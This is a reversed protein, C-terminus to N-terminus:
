NVSAKSERYADAIAKIKELGLPKVMEVSIMARTLSETVGDRIKDLQDETMNDPDALLIGLSAIGPIEEILAAYGAKGHKELFEELWLRYEDHAMEVEASFNTSM